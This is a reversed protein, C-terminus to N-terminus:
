REPFCPLARGAKEAPVSIGDTWAEPFHSKKECFGGNCRPGESVREAAFRMGEIELVPAAM